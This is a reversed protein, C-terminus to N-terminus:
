ACHLWAFLTSYTHTHKKGHIQHYWLMCVYRFANEVKHYDQELRSDSGTGQKYKSMKMKM